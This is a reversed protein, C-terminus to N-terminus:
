EEEPLGTADRATARTEGIEKLLADIRRGHTVSRDIMFSIDPIIKIRLRKSIEGRILGRAANLIELSQEKETEDMVSVFIRAMKLDDTLDVDTVTVFGLRPDKVKNMVIDAIEERLLIGLRQSRKYPHM